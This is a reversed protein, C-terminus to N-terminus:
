KGAQQLSEDFDLDEEDFEEFQHVQRDTRNRFPQSSKCVSPLHNRKGCKVCIKGYAPCQGKACVEGCYKCRREVKSEPKRRPRNKQRRKEKLPKEQNRKKSYNVTEPQGMGSLQQETLETTRAFERFQQMSQNDNIAKRTLKSNHTNNVLQSLVILEILENVTLDTLKMKDVEDKVRVYFNDMSEAEGQKMSHVMHMQYLRNLTPSFKKTLAAHAKAFDSTEIGNEDCKKLLKRSDNGIFHWFLRYRETVAAVNNRPNEADVVAQRDDPIQMANMMANFGELWDEWASADKPSDTPTFSPYEPLSRAM